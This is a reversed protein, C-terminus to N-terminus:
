PPTARRLYLDEGEALRLKASDMPAFELAAPAPGGGPWGACSIRCLRSYGLRIVARTATATVPGQLVVCEPLPRCGQLRPLAKM